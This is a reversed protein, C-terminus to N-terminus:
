LINQQNMEWDNFEWYRLQHIIPPLLHKAGTEEILRAAEKLKKIQEGYFTRKGM